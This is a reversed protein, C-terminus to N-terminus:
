SLSFNSILCNTSFGIELINAGCEGIIVLAGSCTYEIIIILM